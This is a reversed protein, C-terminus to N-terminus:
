FYMLTYTMFFLLDFDLYLVLIHYFLPFVYSYALMNIHCIPLYTLFKQCSFDLTFIKNSYCIM